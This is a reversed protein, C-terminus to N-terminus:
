CSVASDQPQGAPGLVRIKHATGIAGGAPNTITATALGGNSGIQVVNWAVGAATQGDVRILITNTTINNLPDLNRVDVTYSVGASCTPQLVEINRTTQSTFLGTIYGYATIALAVTIVLMLLTAIVTSIGKM